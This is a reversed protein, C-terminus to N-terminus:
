KRFRKSVALALTRNLALALVVATVASATAANRVTVFLVLVNLAAIVALSHAKLKMRLRQRLPQSVVVVNLAAIVALSYAKM